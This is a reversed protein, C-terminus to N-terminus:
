QQNTVIKISNTASALGFARADRKGVKIQALNSKNCCDQCPCFSDIAQCCECAGTDQNKTIELSNLALTRLNPLIGSGIAQAFDGGVELHDLNMSPDLEATSPTPIIVRIKEDIAEKLEQFTSIMRVWGVDSPYPPAISGPEPWVISDKLWDRLVTNTGVFECTIRDQDETMQLKSIAYDRANVTSIQPDAGPNCNSSVYTGINDCCENPVGDTIINILQKKSPDFNPSVWMADSISLFGCALPTLEGGQILGRISSAVSAANATTVVVPDIEVRSGSTGGVDVGIQVVTLEISGDRPFSGSEIIDALGDVMLGWDSLSISGSGDLIFGLQVEVDPQCAVPGTIAAVMSLFLLIMSAVHYKM